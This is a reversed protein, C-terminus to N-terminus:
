PTPSAKTPLFFTKIKSRPPSRHSARADFTTKVPTLPLKLLTEPACSSCLLQLRQEALFFFVRPNPRRQKPQYLDSAVPLRHSERVHDAPLVFGVTIELNQLAVLVSLGSRAEPPFFIEAYFPIVTNLM